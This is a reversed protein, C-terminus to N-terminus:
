IDSSKTLLKALKHLKDKKSVCFAEAEWLMNLLVEDRTEDLQVDASLLPSLRVYRVNSTQCWARCRDVTHNDAMTAQDILLKAMNSLGFAMQLTGYLSEPRFCDIANVVANRESIETLLDLSPNNAILGGDIFRGYARFYSPAAGSARAAEWVLQQSPPQTAVFSRPGVGSPSTAVVNDPSMLPRHTRLLQEGSDYNRFLHLDAPYRDALVGTVVVKVGTIDSMVTTEGLERKLVDELPGEPYPRTGQFVQDKLRFYLGLAYDPSKDLSLALALIAGTSTGAIWDFLRKIPAGLAHRQLARLLVILVLGRIGGGDLCLLRADVDEM